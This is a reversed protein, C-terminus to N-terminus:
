DSDSESDTGEPRSELPNVLKPCTFEVQNPNENVVFDIDSCIDLFPDLLPLKSSGMKIADTIGARLRGNRTIEQGDSSNIYNYLQSLWKAHQPKMITLKVNFKVDLVECGNELAHLIQRSYWESFAKRMFTKFTGNATLNLPQFFHTMKALVRVLLINNDKLVTLVDETMHEQFVDMILYAPQTKPLKFSIIEKEIYPIIIEKILKISEATNSYHKPNASLSFVPFEFKPLNQNTKGRYILLMVVFKENITITFIVTMSRKDSLGSIPVSNSGKEAM